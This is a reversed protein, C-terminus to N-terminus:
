ICPSKSRLHDDGTDLAQTLGWKITVIMSSLHEHIMAAASYCFTKACEKTWSIICCWYTPCKELLLIYDLTTHLTNRGKTIRLSTLFNYEKTCVTFWKGTVIARPQCSQLHHYVNGGYILFSGALFLFSWLFYFCCCISVYCVCYLKKCQVMAVLFNSLKSKFIFSHLVSLLLQFSITTHLM